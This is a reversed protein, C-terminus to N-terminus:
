RSSKWFPSPAIVESTLPQAVGVLRSSFFVPLRSVYM